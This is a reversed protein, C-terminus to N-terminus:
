NSFFHIGTEVQLYIITTGYSVIKAMGIQTECQYLNYKEKKALSRSGRNM